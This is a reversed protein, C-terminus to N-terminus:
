SFENCPWFPKSPLWQLIMSSTSGELLNHSLDLEVLNSTVNSLWQLIMSSTFSNISLDLVSLSSSFNFKSPRLPLIFHDSLSFNSLSLERLKPLKAIMQLFSHSTNLNSISDFSLHTLSILNSLWHGGDDIKLAGDDDYFSGGLYVKQLNSLNGLQSPISGEFSSYRLDLHLLQSLNGIESPINGEFRNGSLDLHQLRSLNGIQSPLKGEFLNGRLDLHQLQSLNGLQRPISAELSNLALNLYKLHSLSGFQTPIKGGFHSFSLDLYRLNTLSGLFEPIGRGLFYNFSLNLYNLQQLEMLSQHIEGSLGLSHLDLMLVHGTLNTCRIGQWQCCDSTTWSSLMGYDDVLAAKFQLLAEREREICMIEEEACVVQLMMMMFTIIAQMFKFRVPNITPM